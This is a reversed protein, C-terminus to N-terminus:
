KASAAMREAERRVTEGLQAVALAYYSSQNYRTIAYFNLTGAVYVPPNDGNQLAVLALKGDFRQGLDSLAAGAVRLEDATFTPTIDPALLKQLSAGAAPPTVEFYSPAGAQWGQEALYHAVSGIADDASRLLDVRGDHDYDVAYRRISSPMFQPMGIAGAYSALVSEPETQTEQCWRLFQGLEAKFFESRDSRGRPFDLSLTTLVDLARFNGMQRSYITEVGLVGVIISAPVGYEQEARSL